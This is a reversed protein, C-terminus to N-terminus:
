LIKIRDMIMLIKLLIKITVFEHRLILIIWSNCNNEDVYDKRTEVRIVIIIITFKIRLKFFIVAKAKVRIKTNHSHSHFNM